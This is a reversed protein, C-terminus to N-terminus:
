AVFDGVERTGCEESPVLNANPLPASGASGSSPVARTCRVVDATERTRDSPMRFEFEDPLQHDAVLNSPRKVRIKRSKAAYEATQLTSLLFDVCTSTM